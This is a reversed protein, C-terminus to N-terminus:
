HTLWIIPCFKMNLFIFVFLLSLVFMNTIVNEFEETQFCFFTSLGVQIIMSFALFFTLRRKTVATQHFISIKLCLITRCEANVACAYVLRALDLIPIGEVPVVLKVLKQQRACQDISAVAPLIHALQVSSFVDRELYLLM